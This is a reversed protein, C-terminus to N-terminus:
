IKRQSITPQVSVIKPVSNLQCEPEFSGSFKIQLDNMDRRVIKAARSLCIAEEDYDEIECAKRLASGIDEDFALLIDRGQRHATMYPFHSLIQNKLKTSHPRGENPLGLQELRRSYLKILDALKFVPAVEEEMQAEEIYTILEALAIGHRIEDKSKETIEKQKEAARNYLGVLCKPHYKAEQAVLDGASLQALLKEDQLDKIACSTKRRAPRNCM